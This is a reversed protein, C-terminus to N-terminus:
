NAVDFGLFCHRMSALHFFDDFTAIIVCDDEHEDCPPQLWSCRADVRHVMPCMRLWPTVRSSNRSWGIYGCRSSRRGKSRRGIWEVCDLGAGRACTWERSRGGRHGLGFGVRLRFRDAPLPRLAARVKRASLRATSSADTVTAVVDAFASGSQGPACQQSQCSHFTTTELFSLRSARSTERRGPRRARYHSRFIWVAAYVERSPSLAGVLNVLSGGDCPDWLQAPAQLSASPSKGREVSHRERRKANPRAFLKMADKTKMHEFPRPSSRHQPDFLFPSVRASLSGCCRACRSFIGNVPLARANPMGLVLRIKQAFCQREVESYLRQLSEKSRFEKLIFLDVLQAAPENVGNILVPQRVLACHGIKRNGDRLAVVTTGSLFM